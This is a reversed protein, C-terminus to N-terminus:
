YKLTFSKVAENTGTGKEPLHNKRDPKLSEKANLELSRLINQKEEEIEKHREDITRVRRLASEREQTRRAKEMELVCLRMHAEHPKLTRDVSGSHTRINAVGKINKRSVAM